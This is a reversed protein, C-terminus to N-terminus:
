RVSRRQSGAEREVPVPGVALALGGASAVPGVALAPVAVRALGGSAALAVPAM